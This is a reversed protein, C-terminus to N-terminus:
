LLGLRRAKRVSCVAIHVQAVRRYELITEVTRVSRRAAQRAPRARRGSLLTGNPARTKLTLEAEPKGARAAVRLPRADALRM